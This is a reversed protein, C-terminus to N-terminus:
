NKTKQALLIFKNAYIPSSNVKNKELDKISKDTHTKILNNKLYIKKTELKIQALRASTRKPKNPITSILKLM